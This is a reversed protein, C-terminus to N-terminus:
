IRKMIKHPGIYKSSLKGKKDFIMVGKMPTVRLFVWDDVQLELETRRVGAYSNLRIQTTNLRQIILQVKEIDYLVSDPGILAVEGLEFWGILSRCVGGFLSEYPAMHIITYCSTNYCFEIMPLHDDWSGNFNIM